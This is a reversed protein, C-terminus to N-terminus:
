SKDITKLVDQKNIMAQLLFVAVYNYHKKKTNNIAVKV